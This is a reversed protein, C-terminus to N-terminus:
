GHPQTSSLYRGRYRASNCNAPILEQGCFRTWEQSSREWEGPMAAGAVRVWSLLLAAFPAFGDLCCLVGCCMFLMPCCRVFSAVCCLVCACACPLVILVRLCMFVCAYSCCLVCFVLVFVIAVCVILVHVYILYTQKPIHNHWHYRNM